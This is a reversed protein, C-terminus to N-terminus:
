GFPLFSVRVSVTFIKYGDKRCLEKCGNTFGPNGAPIFTYGPPPKTEFSIQEQSLIPHVSTYHNSLVYPLAFSKRRKHLAKWFLKTSARAPRPFPEVIPERLELDEYPTHKRTIRRQVIVHEKAPTFVPKFGQSSRIYISPVKKLLIHVHQSQGVVLIVLSSRKCCRSCQCM